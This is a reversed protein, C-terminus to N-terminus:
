DISHRHQRKPIIFEGPLGVVEELSDRGFRSIFGASKVYAMASDLNYCLGNAYHIPLEPDVDLNQDNDNALLFTPTHGHIMRRGGYRLLMDAAKEAGGSKAYNLRDVFSNAFTVWFDPFPSHLLEKARDNVDPINDGLQQYFVSDAHVLLWNGLRSLAPRHKLWAIDQDSAQEFDSDQGGNMAWYEYFGFQDEPDQDRFMKAALFMVEHNGLLATIKGGTQPAQQELQRVLRVVDIGRPGRDLYDGLFVLHANGGSWNDAADILAAKELLVRLKDYAGHVDGVVWLPNM